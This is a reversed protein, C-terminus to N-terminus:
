QESLFIGCLDSRNLFDKLLVHTSSIFCFCRICKIGYIKCLYSNESLGAFVFGIFKEVM